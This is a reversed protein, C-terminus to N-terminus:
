FGRFVKRSAAASALGDPGFTGAGLAAAEPLCMFITSAAHAVDRPPAKPKAGALAAAKGPSRNWVAVDYGANLLRRTMPFGMMGLGLYGLKEANRGEAARVGTM